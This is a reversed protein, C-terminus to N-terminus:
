TNGTFSQIMGELGPLNLDMESVMDSISEAYLTKAAAGAANTAETIAVELDHGTLSEDLSIQEVHGTGTMTVQVKGCGSTASVTETKMRENLEKMAQPLKQFAGMMSTLNGLGGMGKFM